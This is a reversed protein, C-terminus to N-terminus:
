NHCHFYSMRAETKIQNPKRLKTEQFSFISPEEDVLLKEFSDLKSLLGASNIGVLKLSKTKIQNRKREKRRNRKNKSKNTLGSGVGKSMPEPRREAEKPQDSHSSNESTDKKNLINTESHSAENNPGQSFGYYERQSSSLFPM